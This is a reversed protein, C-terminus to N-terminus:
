SLTHFKTQPNIYSLALAVNSVSHILHSCKSLCFVETLLDHTMRYNNTNKDKQHHLEYGKNNIFGVSDAKHEGLAFAWELFNDLSLRQVDPIHVTKNPYRQQFAMIGFDTDSAVFLKLEPNHLLLDDVIDFYQKLFVKGSEIFHSPHRYHIGIYSLEQSMYSHSRDIISKEFQIHKSYVQHIAKRWEQFKNQDQFLAKTKDPLRFEESAYNGNSYNANYIAIDTHFTDGDEFKVPDFFDFWSNPNDTWYCFHDNVNGNSLMFKKKNFLPYAQLGAALTGIYFNFASFFGCDRPIFAIKDKPKNKDM